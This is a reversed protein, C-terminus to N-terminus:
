RWAVPPTRKSTRRPLQPPCATRELVDEIDHWVPSARWAPQWMPMQQMAIGRGTRMQGGRVGLGKGAARTGRGLGSTASVRCRRMHVCRECVPVCVPSCGSHPFRATERVRSLVRKHGVSESAAEGRVRHVLRSAAKLPAGNRRARGARTYIALDVGCGNTRECASVHM